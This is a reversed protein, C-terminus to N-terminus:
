GGFRKANFAIGLGKIQEESMQNDRQLKIFDDVTRIGPSKDEDTIKGYCNECKRFTITKTGSVSSCPGLEGDWITVPKDWYYIPTKCSIHCDVGDIITIERAYLAYSLKDMEIIDM